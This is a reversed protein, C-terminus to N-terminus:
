PNIPSAPTSLLCSNSEQPVLWQAQHEKLSQYVSLLSVDEQSIQLMTAMYSSVNYPLGQMELTSFVSKEYWILM